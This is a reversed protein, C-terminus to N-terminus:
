KEQLDTNSLLHNVRLGPYKADIYRIAEEKTKFLDGFEESWSIGKKLSIKKCEIARNLFINELAELKISSDGVSDVRVHVEKLKIPNGSNDIVMVIGWCAIGKKVWAEPKKSSHVTFNGSDDEYKYQAIIKSKDREGCGVTCIVLLISSFIFLFQKM